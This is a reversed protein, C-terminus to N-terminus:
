IPDHFVFRESYEIEYEELFNQYETKFATAKHHEEQNQIYNVVRPIDSKNYSFAGYGTQWEFRNRLFGMENIWKSSCGKVDRMLNSVTQETRLIVFIHIHDPMSNICLVIHGNRKIIGTIYKHLEEKWEPKILAQRHKVAFVFQIYIQTYTNAM